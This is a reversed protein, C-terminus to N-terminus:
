KTRESHPHCKMQTVLRTYAHAVHQRTRESPKGFRRLGQLLIPTIPGRNVMHPKGYASNSLDRYDPIRFM